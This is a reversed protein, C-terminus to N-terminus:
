CLGHHTHLHVSTKAFLGTQTASTCFLPGWCIIKKSLAFNVVPQNPQLLSPIVPSSPAWCHCWQWPQSEPSQAMYFYKLGALSRKKMKGKTVNSVWWSESSNELILKSGVTSLTHAAEKCLGTSSSFLSQDILGKKLEAPAFDPRKRKHCHWAYHVQVWYQWYISVTRRKETYSCSPTPSCELGM